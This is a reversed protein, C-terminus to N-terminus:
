IAVLQAIIKKRTEESVESQLLEEIEGVSFELLIREETELVDYKEAGTEPNKVPRDEFLQGTMDLGEAPGTYDGTSMETKVKGDHEERDNNEMVEDENTVDIWVGPDTGSKGKHKEDEKAGVHISVGNKSESRYGCIACEYETTKDPM